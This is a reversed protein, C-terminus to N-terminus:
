GFRRRTLVYVPSGGGPPFLLTYQRNAKDEFQSERKYSKRANEFYVRAEDRSLDYRLYSIGYKSDDEYQVKYGHIITEKAM